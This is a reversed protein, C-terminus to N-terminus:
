QARSSRDASVIGPALGAPIAVVTLATRRARMHRLLYYFVASFLACFVASAMTKSYSPRNLNFYLLQFVDLVVIALLMWKVNVRRLVYTGLPAMFLVVPYACLWTEIQYRSLGRDVFARYAFGLISMTTMTVIAVYTAAKENMGFRTILLTYLLIDVGTGFLSLVIGGLFLTLGLWGADGKMSVFLTDETGRQKHLYYAVVFTAILSLFLAQILYVPIAQLTNMGLVFGAFCAPLFFLVKRYNRLVADKHTLIFISASTLGISQIMMSFDRALVRDVHLFVNLAPFAIAGGSQPTSGAVFAALVMVAPYYWHVKLFSLDDFNLFLVVWLIFAVGFWISFLKSKFMM